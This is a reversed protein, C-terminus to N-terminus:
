RSLERHWSILKLFRGYIRLYRRADVGFSELNWLHRLLVVGSEKTEWEQIKQAPQKLKMAVEALSRGRWERAWKLVDANFPIQDKKRAVGVM